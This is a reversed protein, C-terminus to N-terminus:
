DSDDGSDFHREDVAEYFGDDEDSDPDATEAATPLWQAASALLNFPEADKETQVLHVRLIEIEGQLKLAEATKKGRAILIEGKKCAAVCPVGACCAPAHAAADLDSQLGVIDVEIADLATAKVGSCQSIRLCLNRRHHYVREFKKPLNDIETQVRAQKASVARYTDMMPLMGEFTADGVLGAESAWPYKENKVDDIEAATPRPPTASLFVSTPTVTWVGWGALSHLLDAITRLLSAKARANKKNPANLLSRQGRQNHLLELASWECVAVVVATRLGSVAIRKAANLEDVFTPLHLLAPLEQRGGTPLLWGLEKLRAAQIRSSEAAALAMSVPLEKLQRVATRRGGLGRSKSPFLFDYTRGGDSGVMNHTLAEKVINLAYSPLFDVLVRDAANAGGTELRTLQVCRETMWAHAGALDAEKGKALRVSALDMLTKAYTINLARMDRVKKTLTKYMNAAKRKAVWELAFNLFDIRYARSMSRTSAAWFKALYWLQEMEEGMVYGLGDFYIGCYRLRCPKVHGEAHMAPLVIFLRGEAEAQRRYYHRGFKCGFDLFIYKVGNSYLFITDVIYDYFLFCEHTDDMSYFLKRLPIGEACCAGCIGESKKKSGQTPARRGAKYNEGPACGGDGEDDSATAGAGGARRAALDAALTQQRDDSLFMDTTPAIHDSASGAGAKLDLTNTADMMMSLPLKLRVHADQWWLLFPDSAAPEPGLSFKLDACVPCGGFHGTDINEVGLLTLDRALHATRQYEIWAKIVSDDPLGFAEGVADFSTGRFVLQSTVGDLFDTAYWRSGQRSVDAQQAYCGVVAADPTWPHSCELCQRMFVPFDYKGGLTHVIVEFEPITGESSAARSGCQPCACNEMMELRQQTDFALRDTSLASAALFNAALGAVNHPRREANKDFERQNREDRGIGSVAKKPLQESGTGGGESVVGGGGGGGSGGGFGGDGHGGLDVVDSAVRKKGGETGAFGRTHSSGSERPVIDWGVATASIEPPLSFDVIKSGKM